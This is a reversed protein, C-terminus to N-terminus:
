HAAQQLEKQRQAFRRQTSKDYLVTEKWNVQWGRDVLEVVIMVNGVVTEAGVVRVEVVFGPAYDIWSLSLM